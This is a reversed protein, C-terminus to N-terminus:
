GLIEVGRMGKLLSPVRPEPPKQIWREHWRELVLWAWLVGSLFATPSRRFSAVRESLSGYDLLGAMARASLRSDIEAAFATRLWEAVPLDFGRKPRHVLSAPVHRVAVRKLLRKTRPPLATVCESDPLANALEMVRRDLFPVRAELGFFMTARDTRMLVDDPLRTAQDFLMADRSRHGTSQRRTSRRIRRAEERISEDLLADHSAEDTLHGTGLYRSEGSQRLYDGDRGSRFPALLSRLPGLSGLVAFRLYANYGGFLEDSGEGALMVKMGKSRAFRSLLMLALASPDASPDDNVYTWDDVAGLFDDGGVVSLNWPLGCHQAAIKAFPAEDYESKTGVTFAELKECRAALSALLGSDVGGSLFIGVPVDSVLHSLVASEIAEEIEDESPRPAQPRPQWYSAPGSLSGSTRVSVVSAPPVKEVGELMTGPGLPARYLFYEAVAAPRLRPNVEGSALLAKPESAFLLARDTRIYYLPKIGARDRVLHLTGERADWLAFAFMGELRPFVAPGWALYGNLIVETDSHDTQFPWGHDELEKWLAQYNYIEGNFVIAANGDPTVLPQQGTELDLIALRNHGLFVRGDTWDGWDDPGRHRLFRGMRRVCELGRRSDAGDFPLYGSIGCMTLLLDPLHPVRPLHVPGPILIM